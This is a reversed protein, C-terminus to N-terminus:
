RMFGSWVFVFLGIDGGTLQCSSLFGDNLVVQGDPFALDLVGELETRQKGAYTRLAPAPGVLGIRFEQSCAVEYPPAKRCVLNQTQDRVGIIGGAPESRLEM